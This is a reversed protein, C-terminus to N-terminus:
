LILLGALLILSILSVILGQKFAKGQYYLEVIHRGKSVPVAQLLYNAELVPSARGDVKAAWEPYYIESLVVLGNQPMTVALKIKNLSYQQIEIQAPLSRPSQDSSSRLFNAPLKPQQRLVIEKLPDFETSALYDLQANKDPIVQYQYVAWARPLANQNELLVQDSGEQKVIYKANLLDLLPSSENRQIVLGAPGENRTEFFNDLPLGNIYNGYEFINKLPLGPGYGGVSQQQYWINVPSTSPKGFGIKVFRFPERSSKELNAIYELSGQSLTIKATQKGAQNVNVFNWGAWLLEAAILFILGAMLLARTEIKKAKILAYLLVFSFGAILFIQNLGATLTNKAQILISDSVPALAAFALLLIFTGAVMLGLLLFATKLHGVTIKQKLLLYASNAALLAAVLPLLVTLRGPVRFNNAIPIQYLLASIGNWKGFSLWIAGLGLLIGFWVLRNRPRFALGLLILILTSTGLYYSQEHFSAIDGFVSRPWFNNALSNGLNNWYLVQIVQVPLPSEATFFSYPVGQAKTSYTLLEYTPLIQLGALGLGLLAALGLYFAPKLSKKLWLAFLLAAGFGYFAIQPAGILVMLAFVLALGALYKTKRHKLFLATLYFLLPILAITQLITLHGAGIRLAMFFSLQYVIGGLLAPLFKLGLSRLFLFSALGALLIHFLINLNLSLTLSPVLSFILNPPYFFAAQPDALFPYGSLLYPNWFPLVRENLAQKILLHHGAFATIDGGGIMNGSLLTPSVWLVALGAFIGLALLIQKTRM